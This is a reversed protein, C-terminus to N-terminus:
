ESGDREEKGSTGRSKGNKNQLHITVELEAISIDKWGGM